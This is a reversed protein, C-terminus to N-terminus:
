INQSVAFFLLISGSCTTMENENVNNKKKKKKVFNCQCKEIHYYELLIQSRGIYEM